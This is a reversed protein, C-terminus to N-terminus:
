SPLSRHAFPAPWSQLWVLLPMPRLLLSTAPSYSISWRGLPGEWCLVSSCPPPLCAASGGSGLTIATAVIKIIILALLLKVAMGGDSLVTGVAEYGVGFIQPFAVGIGGVLLGGFVTKAVPPWSALAFRNKTRELAQIYVVSVLAALIGLVSYLGLEWFGIFSYGPIQFAPQRGVMAQTIAASAVASIVVVGFAATTFQGLIIELAFFVGSIPANFASAIGAAAGCAVLTRVREDSLHLVQGTGSGIAAGIQVSPDEPGASGGSGLTIASAFVRLFSRLPRVRGGALAVSEMVGAVGRGRRGRLPYRIILAVLLGGLAPLLLVRFSGLFPLFHHAGGFFLEHIWDILKHFLVAVVGTSLGVLIALLTLTLQEPPQITDLTRALKWSFRQLSAQVSVM